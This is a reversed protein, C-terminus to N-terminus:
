RDRIAVYDALAALADSSTTDFPLQRRAAHAQELLRHIEQENHDLAGTDTLVDVIEDVDEQSLDRRGIGDLVSRQAATAVGLAFSVIETPKGERLDDGVPKGLWAEDGTLGLADDRLQFAQGLPRGFRDLQDLLHPATEGLSPHLAAGLQLPRVITYLATKFTAVERATERDLEGAAAARMDLYQGLNLEIRLEDWIRRADPNVRGTLQDAYVHGLDGVLIAVGEGYRRPEGHWGNDVLRQANAVHVTTAGRRTASNDMIDDHILAFVQLFEFAAGVDVVLDETLGDHDAAGTLAAAGRWSWYCFGARLRKGGSMTMRRLEDVAECVRADVGAWHRHQADLVSELKADVKKAVSLLQHPVRDDTM